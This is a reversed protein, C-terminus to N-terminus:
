QPKSVQGHEMMKSDNSRAGNEQQIKFMQPERIRNSEDLEEIMDKMDEETKLAILGHGPLYYSVVYSTFQGYYNPARSRIIQKFQEYSIDNRLRVLRPLDGEPIRLKGDSESFKPRRDFYFLARIKVTSSDSATTSCSGQGNGSTGSGGM